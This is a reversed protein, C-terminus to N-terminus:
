FAKGQSTAEQQRLISLLDLQNLPKLLYYDAGLSKALEPENLASLVVVPIKSTKPDAKFSLLFEWGDVQPLIVDLFILFPLEEAMIRRADKINRAGRVQYSLDNLYRRFLDAMDANDDIVLLMRRTPAVNRWVLSIEYIENGEEFHIEGNMAEILQQYTERDIRERQEQLSPSAKINSARRIVLVGYKGEDSFSEISLSGGRAKELIEGVLNLFIQRLLVRNARNVSVSRELNFSVTVQALHAQSQIVPRLANLIEIVDVMDWSAEHFLRLIEANAGGEGENGSQERASAPLDDTMEKTTLRLDWLADTLRQLINTQEVFYLTHGLGLRRMVEAVELGSIYRMELIQYGRWDRSQPPVNKQPRLDRIASLLIRRLDQNPHATNKEPPILLEILPSTDLFASDYFHRLAERVIKNFEDRTISAYTKSTM